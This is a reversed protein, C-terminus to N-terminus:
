YKSKKDTRVRPNQDLQNAQNNIDLLSLAVVESEGDNYLWHTVGAPLAIIDGQRFNRIKQHQDREQSRRDQGQQM